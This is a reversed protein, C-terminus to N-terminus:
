AESVNAGALGIQEEVLEALEECNEGFVLPTMDDGEEFKRCFEDINQGRSEISYRTGKPQDVFWFAERTVVLEGCTLRLDEEIDGPGWSEPSEYIRVESLNHQICLAALRHLQGRFESTCLVLAFQPGDGYDDCAYAEIYAKRPQNSKMAKTM